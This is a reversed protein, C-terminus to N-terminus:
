NGTLRMLMKKGNTNEPNRKLSEQYLRIARKKDGMQLYLEALSDFANWSEPHAKLNLEFILRAAAINEKQLYRYGLRLLRQEPFALAPSERKSFHNFLTDVPPYTINNRLIRPIQFIAEDYQDYGLHGFTTTMLGIGKEVLLEGTSLGKESNTFFVYAKQQDPIGLMFCKFFGNDGWHWFAQGFSTKELGIGLGWHYQGPAGYDVPRQPRMMDHYTASKLGKGSLLASMFNMYDAATTLLSYAAAPKKYQHLPKPIGVLDYGMALRSHVEEQYVFSSQDMDLPDFVYTRALRDFSRKTSYELVQQLLIFGEGSYSYRSGATFEITIPKDRKRWNPFGACHTLLMRPTVLDFAKGPYEGKFFHEELYQKPVVQIIPVDLHIRGRDALRLTLYATVPKSLSAAEFITSSQVLEQKEINSYGFVETTTIDGNKWALSIGPIGASDMALPLRERIDDINFDDLTLVQAPLTLVLCCCLLLWIQSLAPLIFTM